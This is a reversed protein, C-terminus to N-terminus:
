KIAVLLSETDLCWAYYGLMGHAMHGGEFVLAFSAGYLRFEMTYMEERGKDVGVWRWRM